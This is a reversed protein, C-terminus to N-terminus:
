RLSLPSESRFTTLLSSERQLLRHFWTPSVNNLTKSPVRHNGAANEQDLKAHIERWEPNRDLKERISPPYERSPRIVHLM